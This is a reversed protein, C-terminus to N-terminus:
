QGIAARPGGSAFVALMRNAQGKSFMYMCADDTYDMYNMSM